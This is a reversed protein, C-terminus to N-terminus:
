QNRGLAWIAAHNSCSSGLHQSYTIGCCLVMPQCPKEIKLQCPEKRWLTGPHRSAKILTSTGGAELELPNRPTQKCPWVTRGLLTGSLTQKCSWVTKKKKWITLYEVSAHTQVGVSSGCSHLPILLRWWDQVQLSYQNRGRAWIGAHKSCVPGVALVYRVASHIYYWMVPGHSTM